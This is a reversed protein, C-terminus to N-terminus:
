ANERSGRQFSKLKPLPVVFRGGWTGIRALEARIEAAWTWALILVEKPRNEDIAAIDRVEIASGPLSLGQKQPDRDVTFPLLGRGVDAVALLGVARGPAGYGAVLAGAAVAAELHGHLRTGAERAQEGLRSFTRPDDLRAAADRALLRDVSARRVRNARAPCALAQISGGHVASRRATVVELGHRRLLRELATFSLYSRHAHSIVDFQAGAILAALDHFEIGIWGTPALSRRIAAVTAELDDVHALAHNVLVLHAGGAEAVLAASEPSGFGDAITPLGAANASGALSQQSEHGLVAMGAARFPELLAGDGSAVDVVLAGAPLRTRALLDASWSALHDAMAGPRRRAHGHRVDASTASHDGDNTTPRGQVAPPDVQALSCSPCLRVIVPALPVAAAVDARVPEDLVPQRGLDLIPDGMVAHCARCGDASGAM